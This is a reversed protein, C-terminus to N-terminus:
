GGGGSEVKGRREGGWRGGRSSGGRWGEVRGEKGERGM